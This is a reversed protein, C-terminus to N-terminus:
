GCLVMKEPRLLGREGKSDWHDAVIGVGGNKESRCRTLLSEIKWDAKEATGLSGSLEEVIDFKGKKLSFAEGIVERM